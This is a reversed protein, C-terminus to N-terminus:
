QVGNVYIYNSYNPNNTSARMTYSTLASSSNSCGVNEVVTGAGSYWQNYYQQHASSATQSIQYYAQGLPCQQDAVDMTVYLNIYPQTFTISNNTTNITAGITAANTQSWATTVIGIGTDSPNSPFYPLSVAPLAVTNLNTAQYTWTAVALPTSSNVPTVWLTMVKYYWGKAYQFQYTVASPSPVGTSLGSVSTATLTVSSNTLASFLSNRVGQATVAVQGSQLAATRGPVVPCDGGPVCVHINASSASGFAVSNDAVYGQAQAIYTNITATPPYAGNKQYYGNVQLALFVAASDAATQLKSKDLGARNFDLALAVLLFVPLATLAVSFTVSGKRESWLSRWSRM